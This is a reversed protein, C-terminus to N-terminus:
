SNTHHYEVVGYEGRLTAQLFRAARGPWDCIEFKGLMAKSAGITCRGYGHGGRGDGGPYVHLESPPAGAQKLALFYYLSNEVHVPDNEAQVLLTPPTEATVNLASAGSRPENVPPQAVSRWPYVM